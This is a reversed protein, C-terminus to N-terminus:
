RRTRHERGHAHCPRVVRRMAGPTWGGACHTARAPGASHGRRPGRSRVGLRRPRRTPRRPGIGRGGQSRRRSAHGTNSVILTPRPLPPASPWPLVSMRDKGGKGQRVVIEGRAFDVDKVRLRVCELDANRDRSPLTLFSWSASRSAPKETRISYHKRRIRDRVQDLRRTQGDGM